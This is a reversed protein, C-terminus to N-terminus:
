ELAAQSQQRLEQMQLTYTEAKVLKLHIQQFVLCVQQVITDQQDLQASVAARTRADTHYLNTTGESLDDTDNNSLDYGGTNSSNITLSNGVDDYNVTINTGATILNSVRDDVREDTQFLNATGEDIDDTDFATSVNILAEWVGATSNYKWGRGLAVYTDGNTPNSPFNLAM